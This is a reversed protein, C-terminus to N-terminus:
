FKNEIESLIHKAKNAIEKFFAADKQIDQYTKSVIERENTEDYIRTEYIIIKLRDLDFASLTSIIYKEIKIILKERFEDKFYNERSLLDISAGIIENINNSTLAIDILEDITLVPVKKLIEVDNDNYESTYRSLLWQTEDKPDIYNDTWGDDTTGTKKLTKLKLKIHEPECIFYNNM